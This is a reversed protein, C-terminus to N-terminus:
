KATPHETVGVRRIRRPGHHLAVFVFLNRFTVTPVTFFECAITTGM